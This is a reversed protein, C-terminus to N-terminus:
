SIAHQLVTFPYEKYDNALIYGFDVLGDNVSLTIVPSVAVGKLPLYISSTLCHIQYTEQFQLVPLSYRCGVTVSRVSIQQENQRKNAISLRNYM